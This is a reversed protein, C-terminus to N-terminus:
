LLRMNQYNFGRWLICLLAWFGSVKRLHRDVPKPAREVLFEIISVMDKWMICVLAWLGSMPEPAQWYLICPWIGKKVIIEYESLSFARWLICVLAWLGSVKSMHRDDPKPAREVLIEIISVLDKWMICVLAWLGSMPKAAQWYWICPRIGRRNFGWM